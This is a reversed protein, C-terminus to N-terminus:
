RDAPVPESRPDFGPRLRCVHASRWFHESFAIVESYRAKFVRRNEVARLALFIEVEWPENNIRGFAQATRHVPDPEKQGVAIEPRRSPEKGRFGKGSDVGSRINMVM